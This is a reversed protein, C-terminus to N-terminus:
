FNASGQVHAGPDVRLGIAGLPHTESNYFEVQLGGFRQLYHAKWRIISGPAEPRISIAIMAPPRQWIANVIHRDEEGLRHGFICLGEQHARLCGYAFSLYDSRSIARLKSEPSGESVFLPVAGPEEPMAECFQELLNLGQATRKRTGGLDTRVLHLGGHLYWIGTTGPYVETNGADFHNQAGFMFDVIRGQGERMISWYLLLDYNTSFVTRYQLLANRIAQLGAAPVQQWPVHTTRVADLLARRISNYCVDHDESAIGFRGNVRKSVALASLVQEFDSTGLEGFLAADQASLRHNLNWQEAVTYLSPYEFREWVARSAGNGVLLGSYHHQRCLEGWDWLDATLPM